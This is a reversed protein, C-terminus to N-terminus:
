KGGNDNGLYFPTAISDFETKVVNGNKHINGYCIFANKIIEVLTEQSIHKLANPVKITQIKWLLEVGTSYNGKSKFRAEIEIFNDNVILRYYNPPYEEDFM